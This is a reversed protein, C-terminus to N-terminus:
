TLLSALTKRSVLLTELEQPDSFLKLYRKPQVSLELKNVMQTPEQVTKPNKIKKQKKLSYSFKM